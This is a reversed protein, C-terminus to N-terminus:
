HVLQSVNSPSNQYRKLFANSQMGPEAEPKVVSEPFTPVWLRMPERPTSERVQTTVDATDDNAVAAAVAVWQLM